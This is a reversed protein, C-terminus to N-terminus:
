FCPDRLRDVDGLTGQHGAGLVGNKDTTNSWDCAQPLASKSEGLGAHKHSEVLGFSDFWDVSGAM